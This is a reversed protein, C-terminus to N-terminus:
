NLNAQTYKLAHNDGRSAFYLSSAQASASVNDVVMGSTGTSTGPLGTGPQTPAGTPFANINSRAFNPPGILIGFFLWDNTNKFELLPAYEEPRSGINLTHAATPAGATMNRSADFTSAYLTLNAATADFAGTYILWTTSDNSSFYPDNFAPAHLNRFGNVGVIAVRTASLNTKAQVTVAHTTNPAAGTGSVAYIFGSAGDVVPSEVVAGTLSGDGVSISATALPSGSSNFGYVKGNACGVFINQTYFDQIPGTLKGACVTVSGASGWTTDLSPIATGCSPNTCFVNKIRFLVGADNGVYATDAFYDVYPSSLTDTGMAAAGLQLDTATGSAAAPATASFTTIAKTSALSQLNANRGDGSNWALVHFHAASGAVSEVFAVKTGDLSLVPSTAVTGNTLAHVNYSWNVTPASTGADNGTVTRNCIGNGGATGTYLNNFAIINPQTGSGAVNVPFVVFDKTCDPPATTNFSYKAPFQGPPTTGAGLSINWDAHIDNASRGPFRGPPIRRPSRFFNQLHNPQLELWRAQREAFERQDSERWRFLARPDRRAAELTAVTGFRPYLM